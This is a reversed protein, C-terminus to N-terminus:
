VGPRRRRSWEGRNDGLGRWGPVARTGGRALMKTESPAAQLRGGGLDGGHRALSPAQVSQGLDGGGQGTSMLQVLHQRGGEIGHQAGHSRAEADDVQQVLRAALQADARMLAADAARARRRELVEPPGVAQDQARQGARSDHDHGVRIAVGAGVLELAPEPQARHQQSRQVGPAPREADQGDTAVRAREIRLIPPQQLRHAAHEASRHLRGVQQRAGLAM